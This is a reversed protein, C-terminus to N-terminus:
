PDQICPHGPLAQRDRWVGLTLRGEVVRGDVEVTLGRLLQTTGYDKSRRFPNSKKEEVKTSNTLNVQVDGGTLVRIIFNDADRSVIVGKVKQKAGSPVKVLKGQDGSQTQRERTAEQAFGPISMGLVLGLILPGIAKKM